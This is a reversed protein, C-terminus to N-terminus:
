SPVEGIPLAEISLCLGRDNMFGNLAQFVALPSAKVYGRIMDSDHEDPVESPGLLPSDIITM